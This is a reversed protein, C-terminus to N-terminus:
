QHLENEAGSKMRWFGSLDPLSTRSQRLLCAQGPKSVGKLMKLLPPRSKSLIVTPPPPPTHTHTRAHTCVRRHTLLFLYWSKYPFAGANIDSKIKGLTVHYFFAM